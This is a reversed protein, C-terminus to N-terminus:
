GLRGRLESSRPDDLQDLMPIAALWAERAEGARGLADFARGLGYLANAHAIDARATGQLAERAQRFHSVAEEFRDLSLCAQGATNHVTGQWHRDGTESVIGLARELHELAEAPRKLHLLIDGMNNLVLSVYQREGLAAHIAAAQRLYDLAEEFREQYYLDVGLSNLVAAEGSRDGTRRRIDLAEMLYRRSETFRGRHAHLSGLHNLLWSLLRDDGLQRASRVGTESIADRAELYPMRLFYDTMAVAIQAAVDHLGLREAQGSVATLSTLEVDFWALAQAPDTMTVPASIQFLATPPLKRNPGLVRAAMVAREGYWRLLRAIAASRDDASDIADALEAAYSRLLDHLRFRGPAPTEALHTDTLTELAAAVDREPQGALAAIAPLSLGNAAPLGLLRFVRAATANEATLADYSMAFCARVAQDGAILETLRSTSDTLKAALYAISWGPRAALRSAAIRIALPLGGCCALVTAAASPEAAVREPGAITAFLRYAEEPPMLELELLAAGPLGALTSRSTIIVGCRATGPLLPRVQAVDRVDDLVVLVDRDALLTRYRAAREAEDAPMDSDAVGLDRLFRALVDAPRVPNAAGGMCVFFQGDGFRDRLSHAAHVALATKGIGGMGAVATVVVAGPRDREPQVGLLGLLMQVAAGRGTFDATDAPLQAPMPPRGGGPTGGRQHDGAPAGEDPSAQAQSRVWAAAQAWAARWEAPDGGCAAAYALTVELSPLVRGGAARALTAASYHTVTAMWRYSPQGAAVRVARLRGAFETLPTVEDPLRQEPRGM